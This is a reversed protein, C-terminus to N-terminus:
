SECAICGKSASVGAQTKTYYLSLINENEWAEQTVSSIYAPEEEAGFSLNISQAQCIMPQRTACMRIHAKQDIEFATRFVLKEENSLFDLHQCSGNKELVDEIVEDTYRNHKKLLEIFEPNVRFLNGSAGDENYVNGHWLNIGQSESGFILSSSVNPALATRHTNRVGYGKCWEPEGWEKAMWQSAKLSEQQIHKFIEINKMHAEFSEYAIMNKQLYTHFGSLGLGIARGKETGRIAKEMGKLGKAEELFLSVLCDLFVTMCYVGDTDKWEDYTSGVMGSLVCTYTHEEDAHLTIETCLNSAKNSLGLDHYMQPQHRHVKDPFYHYGKGSIMKVKLMRQFREHADKFGANLDEIDEDHINFGINAGEPNNKVWDVVEWFDGHGFPIYGAWAGRRTAGQSTKLAMHVFDEFVPLIGDATGGTSIDSGRERIDGLYSSTGFGYKSLMASELRAEGFGYISDPVYSGACSVSMGRNTGTNSLVPTALYAHKNMLMEKWRSRFYETNSPCYEAVKNVIRDIQEEYTDADFLYKEKFAQWGLTTFWEPLNGEKQLKKREASLEEFISLM